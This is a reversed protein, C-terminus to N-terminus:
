MGGSASVPREGLNLPAKLVLYAASTTLFSAIMPWVAAAHGSASSAVFWLLGFGLALSIIPRISSLIPDRDFDLASGMAAHFGYTALAIIAHSGLPAAASIDYLLGLALLAAMPRIALGVRGWGVAACLLALPWPLSTGLASDSRLGVWWVLAVLVSGVILRTTPGTRRWIRALNSEQRRRNM